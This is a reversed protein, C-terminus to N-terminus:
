TLIYLPKEVKTLAEERTRHLLNYSDEYEKAAFRLKGLQHKLEKEIQAAAKLKKVAEGSEDELRVQIVTQTSLAHALHLCCPLEVAQLSCM